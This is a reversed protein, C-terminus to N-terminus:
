WRAKPHFAPSTITQLVCAKENRM